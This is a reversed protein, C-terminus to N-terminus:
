AMRVVGQFYLFLPALLTLHPPIIHTPHDTCALLGCVVM